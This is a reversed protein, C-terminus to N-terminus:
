RAACLRRLDKGPALRPRGLRPFPAALCRWAGLQAPSIDLRGWRTGSQRPSISGMTERDSEYSPWPPVILVHPTDTSRGKIANGPKLQPPATSPGRIVLM